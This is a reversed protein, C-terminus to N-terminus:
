LVGPYDKFDGKKWTGALMKEMVANCLAAFEPEVINMDALILELNNNDKDFRKELIDRMITSRISWDPNEPDVKIIDGFYLATLIEVSSLSGGPHGSGARHIMELIDCRLEACIHKLEKTDPM